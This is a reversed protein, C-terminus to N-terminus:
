LPAEIAFETGNRWSREKQDWIDTRRINSEHDEFIRTHPDKGRISYKYETRRLLAHGEYEGEMIKRRRDDYQYETSITHGPQLKEEKYGRKQTESTDNVLLGDKYVRAGHTEEELKGDSFRKLSYVTNRKKEDDTYTSREEREEYNPKGINIEASKRTERGQDDYGTRYQCTPHFGSGEDNDMDHSTELTKGKISVYTHTDKRFPENKNNCYLVSQPYSSDGEYFQEQVEYVEETTGARRVIKITNGDADEIQLYALTGDEPIYLYKRTHVLKGKNDLRQVEREVTIGKKEKVREIEKGVIVKDHLLPTEYKRRGMAMEAINVPLRRLEGAQYQSIKVNGLNEPPISGAM